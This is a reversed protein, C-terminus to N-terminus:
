KASGKKGKINLDLKPIGFKGGLGAIQSPDITGSIHVFTLEKPEAAIILLGSIADKETKVFIEAIEEDKKSQVGVIRSWGPGRVQARVGDIDAQSYQGPKDFEYSKVFIAKLGGILKKVQVEDTKSDNLFRAALQLMSSDLSVDVAETARSALGTPFKIEQPWAATLFLLLSIGRMWSM